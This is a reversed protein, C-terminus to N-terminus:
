RKGGRGVSKRSALAASVPSTRRSRSRRRTTTRCPSTWPPARWTSPAGPAGSPGTAGPPQSLGFRVILPKNLRDRLALLRDLAVENVLIKSTGRCAIEAPSFNKWRWAGDLVDRWHEFVTTTMPDALAFLRGPPRARSPRSPTALPAAPRLGQPPQDLQAPHLACRRLSSALHMLSELLPRATLGLIAGITSSGEPRICELLTRM